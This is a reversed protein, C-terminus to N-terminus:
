SLSSTLWAILKGVLVLLGLGLAVGILAVVVFWVGQLLRRTTRRHARPHKLQSQSWAKPAPHRADWEARVRADIDTM